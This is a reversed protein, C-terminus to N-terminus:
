LTTPYYIFGGVKQIRIIAGSVGNQLAVYGQYRRKPGATQVAVRATGDNNAQVLEGRTPLNATGCQVLVVDGGQLSIPDGVVAHNDSTPGNTSGDSVGVIVEDATAVSVEIGTDDATSSAAVFRYPRITGGAILAPTDSFSGM